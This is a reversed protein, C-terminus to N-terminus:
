VKWRISIQNNPLFKQHYRELMKDWEPSTLADTFYKAIEKGLEEALWTAEAKAAEVSYAEWGPNLTVGTYVNFRDINVIIDVDAGTGETGSAGSPTERKTAMQRAAEAVKGLVEKKVISKRDM